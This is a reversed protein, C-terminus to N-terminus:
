GWPLESSIYHRAITYSHNRTQNCLYRLGIIDEELFSVSKVSIDVRKPRFPCLQSGLRYFTECLKPYTKVIPISFCNMYDVTPKTGLLHSLHLCIPSEVIIEPVADHADHGSRTSNTAVLLRFMDFSTLNQWLTYSLNPSHTSCTNENHPVQKEKEEVLLDLDVSLMHQYDIKM